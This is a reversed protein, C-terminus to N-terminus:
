VEANLWGNCVTHSLSEINPEPGPISSEVVTARSRDLKCGKRDPDLKSHVQNRCCGLCAPWNDVSILRWVWSRANSGHPMRGSSRPIRQASIRYSGQSGDPTSARQMVNFHLTSNQLGSQDWAHSRTRTYKCAKYFVIPRGLRFSHMVPSYYSAQQLKHSAEVATAPTALAYISLSCIDDSQQVAM